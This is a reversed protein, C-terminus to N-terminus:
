AADLPGAPGTSAQLQLVPEVPSITWISAQAANLHQVMAEACRRLMDRLEDGETLANGVEALFTAHQAREILRARGDGIQGVMVNFATGLRGIEDAGEATVQRQYDGAAIAES